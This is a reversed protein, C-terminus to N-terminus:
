TNIRMVSHREIGNSDKEQEREGEREGCLEAWRKRVRVRGAIFPDWAIANMGARERGRVTETCTVNFQM